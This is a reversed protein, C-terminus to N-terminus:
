QIACFKSLPFTQCFKVFGTNWFTQRAFSQRISNPKRKHWYFYIITSNDRGIMNIWKTALTSFHWAHHGDWSGEQWSSLVEFNCTGVYRFVRIFQKVMFYAVDFIKFHLIKTPFIKVIWCGNTLNMLSKWWWLKANYPVRRVQIPHAHVGILNSHSATLLLSDPKTGCMYMLCHLVQEQTLCFYHLYALCMAQLYCSM